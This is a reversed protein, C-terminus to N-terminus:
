TPPLSAASYIYLGAANGADGVDESAGAHQTDGADGANGANPALKGRALGSAACARERMQLAICHLAVCDLGIWDLGDM